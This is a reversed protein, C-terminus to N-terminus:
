IANMYVINTQATLSRENLDLQSLHAQCDLNGVHQVVRENVLRGPTVSAPVSTPLTHRKGSVLLACHARERDWGM